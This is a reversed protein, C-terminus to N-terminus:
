EPDLSKLYRDFIKESMADDLVIPQYHYRTLVEASLHAAQSQQQLPSLQQPMTADISAAQTATVFALLTWLLTKKM